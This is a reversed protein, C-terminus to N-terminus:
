VWHALVVEVAEDTRGVIVATERGAVQRGGRMPALGAVRALRRELPQLLHAEDRPQPNALGHQRGLRAGGQPVQSPQAKRAGVLRDDGAGGALGLVQQPEGGAGRGHPRGVGGGTGGGRVRAILPHVQRGGVELLHEVPGQLGLGGVGDQAGDERVLGAEGDMRGQGAPALEGIFPGGVVGAQEGGAAGRHVQQGPAAATPLLERAGLAEGGPLRQLGAL